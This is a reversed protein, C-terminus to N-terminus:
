GAVADINGALLGTSTTGAMVLLQLCADDIIEPFRPTQLVLDREVFANQTFLPLRALVRGLVMTITGGTGAAGFTIDEISRIGTDGAQFPIFFGHAFPIRGVIPNTDVVVSPSVRGATGAQNTYTMTFTTGAITLTSGVVEPWAVVGAGTTYRPIAASATMSQLAGSVVIGPYYLLRDVLLIQHAPTAVTSLGGLGTL